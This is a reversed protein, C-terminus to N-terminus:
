GPLKGFNQSSGIPDGGALGKNGLSSQGALVARRWGAEASCTGTEGEGGAICHPIPLSPARGRPPASGQSSYGGASFERPVM